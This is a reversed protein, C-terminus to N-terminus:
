KALAALTVDMVGYCARLPVPYACHLTITNHRCATSQQHQTTWVLTAPGAHLVDVYILVLGLHAAKCHQRM